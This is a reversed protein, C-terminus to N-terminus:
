ADRGVPVDPERRHSPRLEVMPEVTVDLFRGARRQHWVGSVLGDVLLLPYGGAHGAASARDAAAGPLL